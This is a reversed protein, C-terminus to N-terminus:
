FNLMYRALKGLVPYGAWEGKGAKISYMVSFVLILVYMAMVLLWILPMFAILAFPPEMHEVNGKGINGAISGFIFAFWVAFALMYVLVHLIQLLLAQLAHFKVFRSYSKSLMIILPAIWWGPMQLAHALIAFTREEQNPEYLAPTAPITAPLPPPGYPQEPPLEDM